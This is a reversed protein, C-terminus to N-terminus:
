PGSEATRRRLQGCAAEIDRGRSTRVHANVGQDRLRRQFEYTTTSSPRGYPLDPVPNYRLLNVNCRLRKAIGALQRAHLPQHNVGDLLVYELTIERGTRQFYENCADILDSIPVQSSPILEARLAQNPAHLSLALNLQLDERALRRIQQPLGVTSITIRRAGINLGWPANIIRVAKILADYNALPEGMGMMVINTLRTPPDAATTTSRVMGAVRLAQEVIEGATLNRRVGAVGSACFRCGVACGIQSSLCATHRNQEPIWVTECTAGDLWQLLLKRTGDESRAEKLTKSTYLQCCEKLRARLSKSLNTMEDFSAAGKTYIWEVLQDARFRQLGEAVLWDRLEDLWLGPLHLAAVASCDNTAGHPRRATKELKGAPPHKHPVSSNSSDISTM